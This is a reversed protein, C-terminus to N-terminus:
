AGDPRVQKKEILGRQGYYYLGPHKQDNISRDGDVIKTNGMIKVGILNPLESLPKLSQIEKCNEITIWKLKQLSNVFDINILSSCSTFRIFEINSCKAIADFQVLKPLSSLTLAKLKTAEEIGNLSAIKGKSIELIELNPSIVDSIVGDFNTISIDQLSNCKQFRLQPNWQIQEIIKLNNFNSFDISISYTNQVTLKELNSFRYLNQGEFIDNSYISISKLNVPLSKLIDDNNSGRIVVSDINYENIANTLVKDAKKSNEIVLLATSDERITVKYKNDLKVQEM